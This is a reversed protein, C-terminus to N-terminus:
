DIRQRIARNARLREVALDVFARVKHAARRGERHVVHVPLPDPECDELVATLKRTRLLDAVQYSLVLTLGFGAVAAAIAADNTTTALRPHVRVARATGNVRLRWEPAPALANAAIITHQALDAPQEPRGHKKLYAPSACIVRRVAGVRLAHASSDPLEGIRIAVDVGEEVLNVIRDVFWCQVTVDPHRRLYDVVLPMVHMGGFMAPATVTLRGRPAQHVGGASQEAEDVEALIRRCDDVYREGADTVRVVRTTRTLLRAGLRQELEAIARTVAPASVGLRRAAGAFGQADVVAAFTRMLHFRDM